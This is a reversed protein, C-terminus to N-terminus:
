REETLERRTKSHIERNKMEMVKIFNELEEIASKYLKTNNKEDNLVSEAYYLAEELKKQKIMAMIKRKVERYYKECELNGIKGHERLYNVDRRVIYISIGMETAIERNIARYNHKCKSRYLKIIKERRNSIEKYTSKKTGSM